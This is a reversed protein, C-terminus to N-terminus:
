FSQGRGEEEEGRKGGRGSAHKRDSKRVSKHERGGQREEGEGSEQLYTCILYIHVTCVIGNFSVINEKEMKHYRVPIIIAIKQYLVLVTPVKLYTAQPFIGVHSIM